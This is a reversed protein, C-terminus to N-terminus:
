RQLPPTNAFAWVPFITRTPMFAACPFKLPAREAAIGTAANISPMSMVSLMRFLNLVSSTCNSCQRWRMSVSSIPKSARAAKMGIPLHFLATFTMMAKTHAICTCVNLFTLPCEYAEVMHVPFKLLPVSARHEYLLVPSLSALCRPRQVNPTINDNM